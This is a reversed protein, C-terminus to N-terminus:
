AAGQMKAVVLKLDDWAPRKLGADRLLASPHYTPMVPIGRWEGFKGRRQAMPLDGGLLSKAAQDGLACIVVPKLLSLQHELFGRCAELEEASPVQGAGCRCKVVHCLYAQQRSSAMAALMRDLLQGAAGAFPRGSADEDVGPADGVIVLRAQASGEGFIFKRRKPGLACRLCGQIQAQFGGLSAAFPPQPLSSAVSGEAPLLAQGSGASSAVKLALGAAEAAPLAEVAEGEQYALPEALRVRAQPLRKAQAQAFARLKGAYASLDVLLGKDAVNL